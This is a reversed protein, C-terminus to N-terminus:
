KSKFILPNINLSFWGWDQWSKYNGGKVSEFTETGFMTSYGGQLTIYPRVSYTFTFDIESGLGKLKSGDIVVSQTTSFHHYTLDLSLKKTPKVILSAYKDFLGYGPYASAYFYDMSGYFKHHTGYLPDFATSNDSDDQGSLFDLGTALSVSPNFAYTGKVAWMYAAVHNEVKNKGTQYYFTGYLSLANMKYSLNTGLTQMYATKGVAEDNITAPTGSEFGLNLALFSAGFGQTNTYQYWLTQMRKYPQAGSFYQGNRLTEITANYGVILHLKNNPNEYGLKLVDHWRGSQNWDLTGLIRDDDYTLQQRGIQAFFNQHTLKAWAENLMFDGKNEVQSRSGWISINQGSLGMSLFKNDYGLLIRARNSIFSSPLDGEYRPMLVGNRYEARTRLQAKLEFDGNQEQSLVTQSCLFMLSFLIFSHIPKM